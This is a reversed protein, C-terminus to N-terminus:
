LISGQSVGYNIEKLDSNFGNITVFQIRNKLYSCFWNNANGRDCYYSLKQTFITHDVTDFAKKFDIFIGYGYKGSVFQECIKEILHILAYSTSHKQRFGFQLIYILKNDKFFKYLRNHM